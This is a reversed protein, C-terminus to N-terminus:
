ETEKNQVIDCITKPMYVRQWITKYHKFLSLYETYQEFCIQM